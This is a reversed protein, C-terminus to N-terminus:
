GSVSKTGYGKRRIRLQTDNYRPRIRHPTADFFEFRIEDM